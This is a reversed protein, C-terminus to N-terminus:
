ANILPRPRDCYLFIIDPRDLAYYVMAADLRGIHNGAIVFGGETPLNEFGDLKVHAILHVISRIVFRFIRHTSKKM